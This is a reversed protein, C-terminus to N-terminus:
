VEEILINMRKRAVERTPRQGLDWKKGMVHRFNVYCETCAGEARICEIDNIDRALYSCVTCVSETKKISKNIKIKNRYSLLIKVKEELKWLTTSPMKSLM